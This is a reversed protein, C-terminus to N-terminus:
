TDRDRYQFKGKMIKDIRMKLADKGTLTDGDIIVEINEKQLLKLLAITIEERYQDIYYM